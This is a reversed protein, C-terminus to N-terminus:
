PLQQIVDGLNCTASIWRGTETTDVTMTKGGRTTVAHLTSTTAVPSSAVIDQQSTQTMGQAQNRCTTRSEFRSVTNSALSRTCGGSELSAQQEFRAQTICERAKHPQVMQKRTDAMYQARQAQPVHALMADSFITDGTVKATDSFEWLGPKLQLAIHLTDAGLAPAAALAAAALALMIRKPM